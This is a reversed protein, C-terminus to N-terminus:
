GCQAVKGRRVWRRTGLSQHEKEERATALVERARDLAVLVNLDHTRSAMVGSHRSDVPACEECEAENRQHGNCPSLLQPAVDALVRLARILVLQRLHGIVTGYLYAAAVGTM